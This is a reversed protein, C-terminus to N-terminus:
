RLMEELRQRAYKTINRIGDGVGDIGSFHATGDNGGSFRYIQGNANRGYWNRPNVPDDPVAHRFVEDADVPLPTKGHRLTGPVHAPNVSYNPKPGEFRPLKRNAALVDDLKKGDLQRAIAALDVEDANKGLKKAVQEVTLEITEGGARLFLKGGKAIATIATGGAFEIALDIAVQRIMHMILIAALPGNAGASATINGEEDCQDGARYTANKTQFYVESIAFRISFQKDDDSLGTLTSVHMYLSQHRLGADVFQKLRSLSIQGGGYQPRLTITDGEVHGLDHSQGNRGLSDEEVWIAIQDDVDVFDLGTPDVANPMSNGVYRRLNADGAAFGIPDESVFQAVGPDYWRADYYLLGTASDLIQGTYTQLPQYASNTQSTIAGFANYELHNVLAATSNGSSAM